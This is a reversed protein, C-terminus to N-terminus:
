AQVSEAVGEEFEERWVAQMKLDFMSPCRTHTHGRQLTGIGCAVPYSGAHRLM